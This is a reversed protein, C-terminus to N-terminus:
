ILMRPSPGAERILNLGPMSRHALWLGFSCIGIPLFLAFPMYGTDQNKIVYASIAGSIGIFFICIKLALEWHFKYLDVYQNLQNWLKTENM